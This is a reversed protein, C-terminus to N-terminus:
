YGPACAVLQPALPPQTTASARASSIPHTNNFGPASTPAPPVTLGGDDTNARRPSSHPAHTAANMGPRLRCCQVAAGTTGSATHKDCKADAHHSLRTDFDDPAHQRRRACNCVTKSPITRRPRTHAAPLRARPM